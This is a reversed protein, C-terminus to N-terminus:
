PEDLAAWFVAIYRFRRERVAATITGDAPVIVTQFISKRERVRTRDTGAYQVDACQKRHGNRKDFLDRTM